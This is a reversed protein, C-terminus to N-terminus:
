KKMADWNSVFGETRFEGSLKGDKLTGTIAISEHKKFDLIFSLKNNAWSGDRVTGEGTHQSYATGTVKDGDLKLTFTAPTTTDHVKFAVQWEGSIPDSDQSIVEHSFMHGHLNHAACATPIGALMVLVLGLSIRLHM